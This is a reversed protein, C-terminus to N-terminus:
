SASMSPLPRDFTSEFGLAEEADFEATADDDSREIDSSRRYERAVKKALSEARDDHEDDPLDLAEDDVSFDNMNPMAIPAPKCPSTNIATAEFGEVSETKIVTHRFEEFETDRQDSGFFPDHFVYSASM